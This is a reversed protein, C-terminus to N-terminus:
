VARIAAEQWKTLEAIPLRKNGEATSPKSMSAELWDKNEDYLEQAQIAAAAFLHMDRGRIKLSAQIQQNKFGDQLYNTTVIVLDGPSIAKEHQGYGFLELKGDLRASSIVEFFGTPNVRPAAM